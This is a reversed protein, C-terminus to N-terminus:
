RLLQQRVSEVATAFRESPNHPDFRTYELVTDKLQGPLDLDSQLLLVEPVRHKRCLGVERQVGRGWETRDGWIVFARKSRRIADEIRNWQESGPEPDNLAMYPRLGARWAYQEILKARSTDEPQKFSIFVDAIQTNPERV